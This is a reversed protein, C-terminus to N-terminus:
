CAQNCHASRSCGFEGLLRGSFILTNQYVGKKNLEGIAYSLIHGFVSSFRTEDELDTSLISASFNRSEIICAISELIAGRDASTQVTQLELLLHRIWEFFLSRRAKGSTFNGEGSVEVNPTEAELALFPLLITRLLGGKDAATSATTDKFRQLSTEVEAWASAPLMSGSDVSANDEDPDFDGSNFSIIQGDSGGEEVPDPRSIIHTGSEEEGSISFRSRMTPSVPMPINSHKPIASETRFGGLDMSPRPTSEDGDEATGSRSSHDESSQAGASTRQSTSSLTSSLPLVTVGKRTRTLAGPPVYTAPDFAPKAQASAQHQGTSQNENSKVSSSRSAASTADPPAMASTSDENTELVTASTNAATAAASLAAGTQVTNAAASRELRALTAQDPQPPLSPRDKSKAPIGPKTPTGGNPVATDNTSASASSRTPSPTSDQSSRANFRSSPSASESSVSGRILSSPSPSHSSSATAMSANRKQQDLVAALLPSTLPVNPKDSDIPILTRSSRTAAGDDPPTTPTLELGKNTTLSGAPTDSTATSSVTATSFRRDSDGNPSLGLLSGRQSGASSAAAAPAQSWSSAGKQPTTKASPSGFFSSGDGGVSSANSSSPGPTPPLSKNLLSAHQSLDIAEDGSGRDMPSRPQDAADTGMPVGLLASKETRPSQDFLGGASPLNLDLTPAFESTRKVLPSMQREQYTESEDDEERDDESAGEGGPKEDKETSDSRADGEHSDGFDSASRNGRGGEMESGSESTQFERASNNRQPQSGYMSNDQPPDPPSWLGKPPSFQSPTDTPPSQLRSGKSQFLSRFGGRVKGAANEMKSSTSSQPSRAFSRDSTNSASRQRGLIADAKPSSYPPDAPDVRDISQNSHSPQVGKGSPERRPTANLAKRWSGLSRMSSTSSERQM